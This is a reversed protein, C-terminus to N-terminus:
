DIQFRIMYAASTEPMMRVCYLCDREWDRKMAEDTLEQRDIEIKVPCDATLTHGDLAFGNELVEPKDRLMFNWCVEAPKECVIHDSVVLRDGKLTLERTCETVGTGKEYAGAYSVFATMKKEDFTFKDAKYEAGNHQMQGGIEPLNHWSSQMTWIKYRNEGFTERTYTGVGADILWSDGGFFVIFNGVDNHNHSENNHGGKVAIYSNEGRMVALEMGDYYATKPPQYGTSPEVDQILGKIGRYPFSQEVKSIEGSKELQEAAFNRLNESHVRKGFRYIADFNYHPTPHADAFMVSHVGDVSMNMVYEGVKRTFEHDFIDIDGGTMDYLEELADFWAAGAATWYGAGEDCGGDDDYTATFIDLFELSRKVVAERVATDKVALATVTLVNSVIWPDWNNVFETVWRMTYTLYPKVIRRNLEYLMRDRIIDPIEADIEDGLLYLVWTLTAATTASFLDIAVINDDFVDPLPKSLLSQDKAVNHAPIVWSTEECIAWILDIIETLFRGKKECFEGLALALLCARRAHYPTQYHTRNGNISFERYLSVSLIPIEKGAMEEAREILVKRKEAPIDDITKNLDLFPKYEEFPLVRYKAHEFFKV